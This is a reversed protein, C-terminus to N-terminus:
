NLIKPFFSSFFVISVNGTSWLGQRDPFVEQSLNIRRIAALKPRPVGRVDDQHLRSTPPGHDGHDDDYPGARGNIVISSGHGVSNKDPRSTCHGDCDHNIRSKVTM